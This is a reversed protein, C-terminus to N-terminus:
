MIVNTTLGEEGNMQLFVVGDGINEYVMILLKYYLTLSIQMNSNDLRM